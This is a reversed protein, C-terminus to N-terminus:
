IVLPYPKESVFFFMPRFRPSIGRRDGNRCTVPWLEQRVEGQTRPHGLTHPVAGPFWKGIPFVM